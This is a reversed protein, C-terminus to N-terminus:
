KNSLENFETVWEVPITRGADAYRIIAAMLQQQRQENHLWKPIIGIPPKQNKTFDEKFRIPIATDKLQEWTNMWNIVVDIQENTLDSM